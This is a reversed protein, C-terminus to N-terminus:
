NSDGLVWKATESRPGCRGRQVVADGGESAAWQVPLSGGEM